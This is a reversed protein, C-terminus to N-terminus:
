FDVDYANPDADIQEVAAYRMNLAIPVAVRLCVSQDESSNRAHILMTDMMLGAFFLMAPWSILFAAFSLYSLHALLLDHIVYFMNSALCAMALLLGSFLVFTFYYTLLKPRTSVMVTGEIIGTERRMARLWYWTLSGGIWLMALMGVVLQPVLSQAGVGLQGLMANGYTVGLQVVAIGLLWTLVIRM